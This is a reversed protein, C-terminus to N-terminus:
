RRANLERAKKPAQLGAGPPSAAASRAKEYGRMGDVAAGGGGAIEPGAGIPPTAFAQTERSFGRNPM